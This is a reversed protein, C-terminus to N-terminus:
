WAGGGMPNELCSYQLPTGDGAGLSGPPPGLQDLGPYISHEHKGFDLIVLFLACPTHLPRLLLALSQPISVSISLSLFVLLSKM